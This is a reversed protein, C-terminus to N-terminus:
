TLLRDAWMTIETELKASQALQAFHSHSYEGSALSVLTGLVSGRHANEGGLNANVLLAKHPDQFYRAALFCVSPWSDTIYCALSYRGGVVETDPKNLTLDQKIKTGGGVVSAASVFWNQEVPESADRVLLKHMLEVYSDVVLLLLNDPHTLSVHQRCLAQVEVLALKPFLALALPALTVLAGMSPTDHTHAGCQNAPKGATLNSFFERHYSEAYTDPHRAPEATMFDIYIELWRDCDYAQSQTIWTMMLRACYANLTNEGAAMGHHYHTNPKDWYQRRGKLIIGGVIEPRAAATAAAATAAAATAAARGGKSTSHLSMISSPHQTPAAFMRDVGNPPFDRLIDARRYYWHIPMALADGIYLSALSALCRQRQISSQPM